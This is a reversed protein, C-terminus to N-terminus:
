NYHLGDPILLVARPRRFKERPDYDPLTFLLENPILPINNYFKESRNIITQRIPLINLDRHICDNRQYWPAKRISRLTKNQLTQLKQINTNAAPGWVPACYLLIPLLVTKFLLLKNEMSMAKNYLLHALDHKAKFFKRICHDIHKRWTLTSDLYIGLYKTERGYCIPSGNM